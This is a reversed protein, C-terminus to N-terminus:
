GARVLRYTHLGNGLHKREKKWGKWNDLDRLRASVSAEPDGTAASIEKLTRWQGDTCLNLVRAMQANLRAGDRKPEFTTGKPQPLDRMYEGLPTGALSSTM